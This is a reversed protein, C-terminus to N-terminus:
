GDLDGRLFSNLKTVCFPKECIVRIEDGSPLFAHLSDLTIADGCIACRLEGALLSNLIGLNEAFAELDDDHIARVTDTM